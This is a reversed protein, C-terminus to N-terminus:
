YKDRVQSKATPYNTILVPKNLIQAEALLLQREKMDLLNYM